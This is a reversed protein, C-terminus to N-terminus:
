RAAARAPRQEALRHVDAPDFPRHGRGAKGAATLRGEREFQRVRERCVGWIKGAEGSTLFNSM